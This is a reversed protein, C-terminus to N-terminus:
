GRFKGLCERDVGLCGRIPLGQIGSSNGSMGQPIGLGGQSGGSIGQSVWTLGSSVRVNGSPRGQHVSSDGSM